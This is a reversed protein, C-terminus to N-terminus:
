AGGVYFPTAAGIGAGLVLAYIATPIISKPNRTYAVIMTPAMGLLGLLAGTLWSPLPWSVFPIVLGLLLWQVFIAAISARPIPRAWMPAIDILGALASISLAILIATM